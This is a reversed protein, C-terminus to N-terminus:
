AKGTVASDSVAVTHGNARHANKLWSEPIRARQGPGLIPVAKGNLVARRDGPILLWLGHIGDRRGVKDQLRKLLQMQDYRGLMSPYILLMTKDTASMRAELKPMVRNVLLIMKDWDGEGPRADTDLLLDWNVKAREAEAQLADIFLGEFDILDVPFRDTLEKAAQQYHKPHVLLALFSGDAAARQLREEFQRADAIEPTIPQPTGASDMTALRSIAESGTSVSITEHFPSVYCGKDDKGRPDWRLELGADCLLTDLQPRGPLPIADPYCSRVRDHIQQVTLFRVGLLAGQSLKLARAADM